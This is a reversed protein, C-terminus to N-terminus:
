LKFEISETGSNIRYLHDDETLHDSEFYFSKATATKNDDALTDVYKALVGGTIAMSALSLLIGAYIIYRTSIRFRSM